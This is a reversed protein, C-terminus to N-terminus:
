HQAPRSSNTSVELRCNKNTPPEAGAVSARNESLFLALSDSSSLLMLAKEAREGLHNVRDTTMVSSIHFDARYLAVTPNAAASVSFPSLNFILKSTFILFHYIILNSSCKNM